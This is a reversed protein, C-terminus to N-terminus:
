ILPPWAFAPRAPCDVAVRVQRSPRHIITFQTHGDALAAVELTLGLPTLEERRLRNLQREFEADDIAGARHRRTAHKLM